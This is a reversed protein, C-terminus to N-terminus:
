KAATQTPAEMLIQLKLPEEGIVVSATDFLKGGLDYIEVTLPKDLRAQLAKVQQRLAVLETLDADKGAPGQKGPAGDKGAAGQPGPIGQPGRPGAPGQVAATQGSDDAASESDDATGGSSDTAVTAGEPAEIIVQQWQSPPQSVIPSQSGPIVASPPAPRPKPKPPQVFPPRNRPPPNSLGPAVADRVGRVRTGLRKGILLWGQGPQWQYTSCGNPGCDTQAQYSVTHVASQRPVPKSGSNLWDLWATQLQGLNEYGYYHRVAGPWYHGVQGQRSQSRLGAALFETFHERSDHEILFRAVSHGQAYLPLIDNPYEGGPEGAFMRNFPVGRETRLFQLLNQHLRNQEGRTEVTSAAGEDAWRPLPQGFHTAFITHLIEHPLVSNLIESRTGQIHMEWETPYGRDFEFSTQGGGGGSTIEAEIPCPQPWPALERGLWSLSLDRRYTEAADAIQQSFARDPSRVTFNAAHAASVVSFFLGILLLIAGFRRAPRRRSKGAMAALVAMVSVDAGLLMPFAKRERNAVGTPGFSVAYNAPIALRNRQPSRGPKSALARRRQKAAYQERTTARM